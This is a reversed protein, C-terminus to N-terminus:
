HKNDPKESLTHRVKKSGVRLPACLVASDPKLKPTPTDMCRNRVREFSTNAVEPNPSTPKPRYKRHKPNLKLTM